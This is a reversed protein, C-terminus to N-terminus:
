DDEGESDGTTFNGYNTSGSYGAFFNPVNLQPHDLRKNRQTNKSEDSSLKLLISIAETEESKALNPDSRILAVSLSKKIVAENAEEKNYSFMSVTSTSSLPDAQIAGWAIMNASGTATPTPNVFFQRGFSAVMKKTSNPNDKKFALYDEFNKRKYEEGDITLRIISESRFNDPYDYYEQGAVTATTRARVLDHWVVLQTAWIYANQVITTIRASPYMSSNAAVQLRAIVETEIDARTTM